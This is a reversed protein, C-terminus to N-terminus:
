EYKLNKSRRALSECERSITGKRKGTPQVAHVFVRLGRYVSHTERTDM